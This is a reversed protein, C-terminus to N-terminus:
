RKLDPLQPTAFSTGLGVRVPGNNDLPALVGARDAKFFVVQAAKSAGALYTVVGQLSVYLNDRNVGPPVAFGMDHRGLAALATRADAFRVVRDGYPSADFAKRQEWPMADLKAGLTQVDAASMGAQAVNRGAIADIRPSVNTLQSLPLTAHTKGDLSFGEIGGGDRGYVPNSVLLANRWVDTQVNPELRASPQHVPAFGVGGNTGGITRVEPSVLANSFENGAAVYVQAGARGLWSLLGKLQEMRPSGVVAGESAALSISLVLKPFDAAPTEHILKRLAHIFRGVSADDKAWDGIDVREVKRGLVSEATLACAEGHSLDPVTDGRNINLVKTSFDDIVIVRAGGRAAAALSGQAPGVPSPQRIAAAVDPTRAPESPLSAAPMGNFQVSSNV